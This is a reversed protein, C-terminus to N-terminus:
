ASLPLLLEPPFHEAPPLQLWAAVALAPVVATSRTGLLCHPLLLEPPFHEAPLLQVDPIVAPLSLQWAGPAWSLLLLWASLAQAPPLQVHPSLQWHPSLQAHEPQGPLMFEDKTLGWFATKAM